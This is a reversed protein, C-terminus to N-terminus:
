QVLAEIRSAMNDPILDPTVSRIPYETAPASLYTSTTPQPNEITPSEKDKKIAANGKIVSGGSTSIGTALPKLKRNGTRAASPLIQEFGQSAAVAEISKFYQSIDPTYRPGIFWAPQLL